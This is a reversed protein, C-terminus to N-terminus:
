SGQDIDEDVKGRYIADAVKVVDRMQAVDHVRVVSAGNMIALSVAAATGWLRETVDAGTLMGIFSKRSLGVYIPCGIARFQRLRNLLTLNHALTKGFGIGPDVLIKSRLVGGAVATEVQDRLFELIDETVSDYVPDNQMSKPLGQMHMIVLAANTRAVTALMQKDATLGSVDNVMVAGAKIAAEAVAAKYTDVSIPINLVAAAKEIVPIIRAIEEEASVSESGPRTSEGGIDIIDAGSEALDIAQSLAKDPSLFRGGDSFSDPTVNLIGAILTRRSLDFEKDGVFLRGSSSEYAGLAQNISVALVPLRFPMGVLLASLGALQQLTGIILVDTVHSAFVFADRSVVAEGGLSLMTQKLLHAERTDVDHVRILRQIAKQQLQRVESDDIDLSRLECKVDDPKILDLIEVRLPRDM